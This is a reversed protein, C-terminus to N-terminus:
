ARCRPGLQHQVAMSRVRDAMKGGHIPQTQAGAIHM